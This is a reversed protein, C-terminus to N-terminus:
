VSPKGEQAVLEAQVEEATKRPPAMWYRHEVLGKIGLDLSGELVRKAEEDRSPLLAVIEDWNVPHFDWSDVGVDFRRLGINNSMNHTHGHLHVAGYHKANWTEVPFHFLAVPSKALKKVELYDDISQFVGMCALNKRDDHNGLILKKHGNLRKLILSTEHSGGFSIDGLFYVLDQPSVRKNYNEVLAEDMEETSAFPRNAFECIRKHFYHPDSTFWINGM